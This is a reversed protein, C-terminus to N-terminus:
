PSGVTRAAPSARRSRLVWRIPTGELSFAARLRREVYRRYDESWLDPDNVFLLITPPATRTQTAYYIHLRRGRRDAPPSSARVAEEIARTLPGTAIRRARAEATRLVADMLPELGQRRLASTLALPVRGVFGLRQQVVAEVQSPPISRVLDWKNVALVVGCGAEYAQRAIRQDQDTIGEPGDIVVVAVDARALARRTRQVSYYEVGTDVRSRRRLGATDILVLPRGRYVFPTDVADRTTGPRPDVVVRDEGVLANVLSSKGVNPRGIVAVRVADQPPAAGAAPPLVAVVADLVEGIGLGHLASVVFPAGLGLAHFEYAQSRQMPGDAKNAVLLVPKSARRLLDAVEEDQPTLGALCDVVLLIVDAEAIAREAQRRVQAALPEASGPVLGGTDVLTFERDAWRCTDELRDRTLGPLAEVIAVRRALLRNFLASKGVNPRGVIAVVPLRDM